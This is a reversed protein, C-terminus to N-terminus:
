RYHRIWIGLVLSGSGFECKAKPIQNKSGKCDREHRQRGSMRAAEYRHASPTQKATPIDATGPTTKPEPEPQFPMGPKPSVFPSDPFRPEARIPDAALQRLTQVAEPSLGATYMPPLRADAFYRMKWEAARAVFQHFYIPQAFDELFEHLLYSDSKHQLFFAASRLNVEYSSSSDPVVSRALYDLFLRAQRVQELPKAFQRAHYFIMDRVVQKVYWGPCTNYSIFAIGNPSLQTACITFIKDQVESPVWSYVGHCILYDFQGFSEDVDLINLAKLQINTLGLAAATMQGDAIQRASLDIGVFTSGPLAVAMPILNSGQSCGLELVRCREIAPPDLGFLTGITALHDPRTEIFAQSEYPVVDYSTPENAV